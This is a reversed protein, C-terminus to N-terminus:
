GKPGTIAQGLESRLVQVSRASGFVDVVRVRHLKEPGRGRVSETVPALAPDKAFADLIADVRAAGFVDLWTNVNLFFQPGGLPGEDLTLSWLSRAGSRTRLVGILSPNAGTGRQLYGGATRLDDLFEQIRARVEPDFADDFASLVPEVDRSGHRAGSARQTKARASETGHVRPVLVEVGDHAILDVELALVEVLEDTRTNLYEVIGRLEDTIRDVAIVLRFAGDALTQVLRSRFRDADWDESEGAGTEPALAAVPDGGLRDSFRKLFEDVDLQSISSAYSLIQGVVARRVEANKALKCEVVTVSADPELVVLDVSGGSPVSFQTVAIAAASVGPLVEPYDHILQELEIELAFGRRSPSAWAGGARRVLAVSEM